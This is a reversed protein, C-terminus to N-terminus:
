QSMGVMLSGGDASIDVPLMMSGLAASIQQGIMDVIAPDAVLNGAYAEDLDVALMGGDSMISGSFGLSDIGMVGSGLEAVVSVMGNDFNAKVASVEASNLGMQTMMANLQAAMDPTIEYTGDPLGMPMGALQANVQAAIMDLVEPVVGMGGAQASAIDLTLVGGSSTLSGDVMVSDVGAIPTGLMVHLGSDNAVVESIELKNLQNQKMLETVLSSAQDGTLSVNGSTMSNLVASQGEVAADMSINAEPMSMPSGPACASLGVLFLFLAAVVLVSKRTFM